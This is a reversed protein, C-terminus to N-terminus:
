SFFARIGTFYATKVIIDPAAFTLTRGRPAHHGRLSFYLRAPDATRCAVRPQANVVRNPMLMTTMQQCKNVDAPM